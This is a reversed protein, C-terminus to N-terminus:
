SLVSYKLFVERTAECEIRSRLVYSFSSSTVKTNLRSVVESAVLVCYLSCRILQTLPQDSNHELRNNVSYVAIEEFENSGEPRYYIYYLDVKGYVQGPRHWQLYLTTESQCTLNSIFPAGPGSADTTVNVPDSSNGEHGPTFAKAWVKYHSLPKTVIYSCWVSNFYPLVAIETGTHVGCVYM